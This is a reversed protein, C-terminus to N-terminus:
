QAPKRGWFLELGKWEINEPQELVGQFAAHLEAPSYYPTLRPDFPFFYTLKDVWYVLHLDAEMRSWFPAGFINAEGLLLRRGPKLIRTLELGTERWDDTHQVAQLVTVVDYSADPIDRTYKWQWCAMKGNRGVKRADYAARAEELIEIVRVEGSPGVLRRLDDAWGCPEVSEGIVLVRDGPRVELLSYVIANLPAALERWIYPLGGFLIVRTWRKQEEVDTITPGLATLDWPQTYGWPGRNWPAAGRSPSM